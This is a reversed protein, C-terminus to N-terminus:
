EADKGFGEIIWGAVWLVGGFAAITGCVLTLLLLFPAAPQEFRATDPFSLALVFALALLGAAVVGVSLPYFAIVRGARQMRKAGEAINM